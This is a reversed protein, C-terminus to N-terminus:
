ESQKLSFLRKMLLSFDREDDIKYFKFLDSVSVMGDNDFDILLYFLSIFDEKKWRNFKECISVFGKM